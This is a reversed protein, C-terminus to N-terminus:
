RRRRAAGLGLVGILALGGPGPVVQVSTGILSLTGQSDDWFEGTLDDRVQFTYPYTPDVDPGSVLDIQYADFADPEVEISFTGILSGLPAPPCPIVDCPGVLEGFVVGNHMGGGYGHDPWNVFPFGLALDWTINTVSSPGGLTTADLGIAGSLYSSGVDADGYVSVTFNGTQTTSSPELWLTFEQASAPLAIAALM